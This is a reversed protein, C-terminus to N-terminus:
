RLALLHGRTARELVLGLFIMVIGFSIVYTRDLVQSGYGEYYASRMWETTQLIPQYALADRIVTPLVDPVFIVGSSTWVIILILSYGTMWSPVALGIVGNLLGAGFGLLISAGFAYAAQVIHQPWVDIGVFWGLIIFVIIVSSASLIELIASAFLIDLIKVEPFNLLTRNMGVYIMMFRSLYAFTIYPIVGTAIFLAPSNGYPAARGTVTFLIVLILMHSLPWAIKVLYGIGHGFFRLRLNRLMVAFIVRRQRKIASSLDFAETHSM